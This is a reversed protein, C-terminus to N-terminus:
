LTLALSATLILMVKDRVKTKLKICNTHDQSSLANISLQGFEEKLQDEMALENLVENSLERDLENLALANTQPKNRKTCAEFYGLVFKEGCSFCLGKARRYDRLQRDKWLLSRPAAPKVEPKTANYNRLQNPNRNYKAKNRDLVKQQVKALIFARLVTTPMQAEVTGRLEEKLGMVYKHAFFQDDYHPNHMSVDHQLAQFKTTYEELSSQQKLELLETIASRFDDAGFEAEATTCFHKWSKFTHNQKYAQWWKSANGQLHLTAAIIWIGEPLQYLDFYSKCNDIWEKPDTGDFIPFNMKPM